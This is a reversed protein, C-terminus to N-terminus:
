LLFFTEHDECIRTIVLSLRARETGRVAKQPRVSMPM